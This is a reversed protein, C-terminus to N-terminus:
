RKSRKRRTRQSGSLAPSSGAGGGPRTTPAQGSISLFEVTLIAIEEKVTLTMETRRKQKMMLSQEVIM